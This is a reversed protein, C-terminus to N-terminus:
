RQIFEAECAALWKLLADLRQVRYSYVLWTDMHDEDELPFDAQLQELWGLCAQRQAQILDCAQSPGYRRAMILKALFEQRMFRARRVPTKLWQALSQRGLGTIQFVKRAPYAEQQVLSSALYGYAELKDLMVYMMSQTINWVLAIGQTQSLEQFLEYGHM